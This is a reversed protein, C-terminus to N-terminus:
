LSMITLHAASLSSDHMIKTCMEWFKVLNRLGKPDGNSIKIAFIVYKM